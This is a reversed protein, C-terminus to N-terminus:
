NMTPFMTKAVDAAQHTEGAGKTTFSDESIAKGIKVFLRVLEPHNGFGTENLAQKFEPTAFMRVAKDALFQTEAFKEGGLEKDTRVAQEWGAVREAHEAKVVADVHTAFQDLMQSDRELLKQAAEQALGLDKAFAEIGELAAADFLTNEPLKLDYKEPATKGADDTKTASETATGGLLTTTGAAPQATAGATATTETAAGAAASDPTTTTTTATTTAAETM